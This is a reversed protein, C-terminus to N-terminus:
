RTRASRASSRGAWSLPAAVELDHRRVVEAVRRRHRVQELVVRHEAREVRRDLGAVADDADAALLDREEGLPIRGCSGHPSRPTSTAISDVPIKVLRSPACFCRSAPAFFTTMEAGAVSGSRVTTSPTFSPSYSGSFCLMMEFADHVVFQTAGTAFSSCSAYVISRPNM